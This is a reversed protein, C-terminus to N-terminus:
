LYLIKEPDHSDHVTLDSKEIFSKTFKLSSNLCWDACGYSLCKDPYFPNGEATLPNLKFKGKLVKKFKHIEDEEPDAAISEPEYHVLANRLMIMASVDQYPSSGRNFSKANLIDLAIEYKKLISYSATRPIGHNWMKAILEIKNDSLGQFHTQKSESIDMYFENIFAELYSTSMIVCSIVFSRHRHFNESKGSEELDKAYNAFLFASKIHSMSLYTRM